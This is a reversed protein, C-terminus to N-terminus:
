HAGLWQSLAPLLRKKFDYQEQIRAVAKAAQYRAGQSAQAEPQALLERGVAPDNSAQAIAALMAGGRGAPLKAVIPARVALVDSWVRGPDSSQQALQVLFRNVRGNAIEDTLAIKVSEDIFAGNQAAALAYYFQLKEETSSAAKGLSRLQDFTAQDANRGITQLVPKRLNPALSAPAAIFSAYRAKCERIVAEDGFRGLAGILAAQLLVTQNTDDARADWGVRAFVPRLLQLAYRRFASQAPAQRALDDIAVLKDIVDTWVVLESEASLRRTLDLYDALPARGAAVLAWEDALLDVRDAPALTAYAKTLAGLGTPDYQVRYYGTDGLNAKLPKGCGPFSITEPAAGILTTRVPQAGGIVGIQVPVNWSLPAASPDDISFREQKLVVRTSGSKCATAVRILPIGPQEIFGAAIKAVPKGSAAQLAVWLDATTANSYAHAKMYHRMGDRFADEGLYDELMRLFAEGKQYSISDFATLVQSEDAIQMQIPHATSRADASMALEKSAHQSLWVHWDPNLADSSKAAMWSAFGENLWVDNWWAMTVLDGSWQHAMEHAIVEFIEQRTSESSSAPNMLLLDDIFTIGGWNEMAGAAFNGPIAILDLKPLPYPVGFYSNYYALIRAAAQLAERGQEAKGAVTWVGIDTSNAAAHIRQLHGACLVLLYTSMRPTQAFTTKTLAVGRANQGASATSAAPTNSVVQLDSPLEVALQFTAKFAPEDWGPFMRRADTAEFQTVLMRQKGAPTAYDDYYIGAPTAPIRGSYAIALTHHGAALPQAFHFTARQHASDISVQAAAREAGALAVKDFVLDVANVTVAATAREVNVEIEERATFKLQELDPAIDIRYAAPVVDKPLEGPTTAFNFLSKAQCALAGCGLM